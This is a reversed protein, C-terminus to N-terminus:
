KKKYAYVSNNVCRLYCYDAVRAVGVFLNVPLCFFFCFIQGCLLLIPRLNKCRIGIIVLNANCHHHLPASLGRKKMSVGLPIM